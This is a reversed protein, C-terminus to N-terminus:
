QSPRGARGSKKTRQNPQPLEILLEPDTFFDAAFEPHFASFYAGESDEFILERQQSTPETGRWVKAVDRM